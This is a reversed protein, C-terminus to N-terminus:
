EGIYKITYYTAIRSYSRTYTFKGSITGDKIKGIIDKADTDKMYYTNVSNSFEIFGGETQKVTLTDEWIVNDCWNVRIHGSDFVQPIVKNTDPDFPILYPNRMCVYQRYIPGSLGMLIFLPISSVVCTFITIEWLSMKWPFVTPIPTLYSPESLSVFYTLMSGVFFAILIPLAQGWRTDIFKVRKDKM